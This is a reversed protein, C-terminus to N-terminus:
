YSISFSNIFDAISYNTRKKSIVSTDKTRLSLTSAETIALASASWFGARVQIAEGQPNAIVAACAEMTTSVRPFLLNFLAPDFAQNQRV